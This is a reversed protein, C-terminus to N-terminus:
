STFYFRSVVPLHDSPEAASPLATEDTIRPVPQPEAGLATSHFLYDITKAQGNANCTYAASLDYHAYQFGAGQFGGVIESDPTANLDGCILWAARGDAEHEALLRRMKRPGRRAHSPADPPEWALHTNAVAIGRDGIQLSVVLAIDGDGDEYAITRAGAFAFIEKRYFTACGDPQGGKRRAYEVAYGLAALRTRLAGLTEAEVEQLCIVDAALNAVHQALAPVRWAPQLVMVPTRRYWAPHIYAGALVNYSAVSFSSSATM